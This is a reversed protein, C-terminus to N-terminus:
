LQIVVLERIGNSPTGNNNAVRRLDALYGVHDRLNYDPRFEYVRFLRRLEIGPNLCISCGFEGNYQKANAMKARCQADGILYHIHVNLHINLSELYIEEKLLVKIENLHENFIDNFNNTVKGEWYVFTIIKFFAKRIVPPLELIMGLFAYM